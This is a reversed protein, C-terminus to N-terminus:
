IRFDTRGMCFYLTKGAAAATPTLDKIKANGEQKSAVLATKKHINV